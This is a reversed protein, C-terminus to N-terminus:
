DAGQIYLFKMLFHALDPTGSLLQIKKLSKDL